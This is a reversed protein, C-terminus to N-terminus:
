NNVVRVEVRDPTLKGDEPFENSFVIVHPKHLLVKTGSKYKPSFLVRDKLSELFGYQLYQMNERPINFLFVRKTIDVAHALDDRKGVSLLQVDSNDTFYKRCFWSKGAGGDPDVCFIIKRDDDPAEELEQALESQWGDRYDAGELRPTPFLLNRLDVVRPYRIYLDTFNLAITADDPYVTQEQLWVKFREIDSRKGQFPIAAFEGFESFDGDKKCYDAAQQPTGRTVEVHAGPLLQRVSGIRKRDNFVVYGQLHRTGTTPAIEQGFVAYTIGPGNLIDRITQLDHATPNNKTFCFQRGRSPFSMTLLLTTLLTCPLLLQM